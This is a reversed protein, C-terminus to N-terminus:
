LRFRNSTRIRETSLFEEPFTTLSPSKIIDLKCEMATVFQNHCQSCNAVIVFRLYVKARVLSFAFTKILLFAGIFDKTLRQLLYKLLWAIEKTDFIVTSDM